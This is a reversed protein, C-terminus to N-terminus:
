LAKRLEESKMIAIDFMKDIDDLTISSNGGKQVSCIKQDPLIGVTLRDDLAEEEEKTPDTIYYNGIRVVTVPVPEVNIPLGIDSKADFDIDDGNIVPFRCNKIAAIAALGCADMLNGSDNISVIDISVQWVKGNKLVLKKTDIAKGERIGRDVVRALEIAKFKPPGMEYDEGSLPILEVNVMLTGEDPSDSYPEVPTLKIGAIVQTKGINVKASGMATEIVDYEVKVERFEVPGRGDFRANQNLLNNIYKKNYSM